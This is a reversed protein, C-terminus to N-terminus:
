SGLKLASYWISGIMNIALGIINYPHIVIDKFIIAGIVTSAINKIQGTVSTTLASNVSTCFFICFNLLFGIFVSLIFYLQFMPDHIQPYTMVYPVEGFILMLVTIFPLSLASNYYLMDYTSLDRATKKVYVLYTAQFFCSTLVLSYGLANFTM